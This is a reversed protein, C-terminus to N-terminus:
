TLGVLAPNLKVAEFEVVAYDVLGHVSFPDQKLLDELETRSIKGSAILVGGTRPIMPGTALLLGSAVHPDLWERHEARRADIDKVAGTYTLTAVFM